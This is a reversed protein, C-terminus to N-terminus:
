YEDSAGSLEEYDESNASYGESEYDGIADNPIGKDSKKFENANAFM